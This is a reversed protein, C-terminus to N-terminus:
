GIFSRIGFRITQVFHGSKCSSYKTDTRDTKISFKELLDHMVISKGIGAKGYLLALRAAKDTPTKKEIWELIQGVEERRIPPEITPTYGLLEYSGNCFASSPDEVYNDGVYINGEDKEIYINRGYQNVMREEAM